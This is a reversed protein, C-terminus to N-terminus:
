LRDTKSVRWDIRSRGTWIRKDFENPSHPRRSLHQIFARIGLDDHPCSQPFENYVPLTDAQEKSNFSSLCNLLFELFTSSLYISANFNFVVLKNIRCFKKEKHTKVLGNEEFNRRMFRSVKINSICISIAPTGTSTDRLWKLVRRVLPNKKPSVSYVIPSWYWDLISNNFWSTAM